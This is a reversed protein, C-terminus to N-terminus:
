KALILAWYRRKGDKAPSSALGYRTFSPNLINRRHQPSNMWRTFLEDQGFGGYAINEAAGGRTDVHKMRASFSGGTVTSHNMSSSKAMSAAQIAAARTLSADQMLPSLGNASRIEPLATPGHYGKGTPGIACGAVAFYLALLSAPFRTSAKM